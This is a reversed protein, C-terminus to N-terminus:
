EKGLDRHTVTVPLGGDVLHDKIREALAVSRHKGGTCGITITLYSKGESAYHPILFKLLDQLKDVFPETEPRESLFKQVAEDMGNLPRLDDVFYPNPIFRVDFLLDAEAPVGYKFGFSILHVNLNDTAQHEGFAAKLFARLEHATFRSTDIIRDAVDRMPKLVRREDQIAKELSGGPEQMPHPRRTESFRRKLIEDTCEFFLLTVPAGKAKLDALTEPFEALFERERADVVIAGRPIAGASRTLLEYFQPILNVPLNDVCFFNLDELCRAALSKGSGSLGTIVVLSEM